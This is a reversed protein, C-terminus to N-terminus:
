TNNEKLEARIMELQSIAIEVAESLRYGDLRGSKRQIDDSTYVESNVSIMSGRKIISINISSSDSKMQRKMKVNTFDLEEDVM